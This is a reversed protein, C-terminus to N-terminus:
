QQNHNVLNVIMQFILKKFTLKQNNIFDKRVLELRKQPNQIISLQKIIRRFVALQSNLLPM